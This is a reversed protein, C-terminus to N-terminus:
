AYGNHVWRLPLSHLNDHSEFRKPIQLKWLSVFEQLADRVISWTAQTTTLDYDVALLRGSWYLLDDWQKAQSLRNLLSLGKFVYAQEVKARWEDTWEDWVYSFGPLFEAYSSLQTMLQATSLSPSAPQLFDWVDVCWTPDLALCVHLRDKAVELVCARQGDCHFNARM